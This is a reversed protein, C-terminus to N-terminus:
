LNLAALAKLLPADFEISPVSEALLGIMVGSHGQERAAALGEEHGGVRNVVDWVAARIQRCVEEPDEPVERVAELRWSNTKSAMGPRGTPPEGKRRCTDYPLGIIRSLEDPSISETQVFLWVTVRAMDYNLPAATGTAEFDLLCADGLPSAGRM